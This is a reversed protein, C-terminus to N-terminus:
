LTPTAMSGRSRLEAENREADEECRLAFPLARLRDMIIEQGCDICLGFAGGEIREIAADILMLERRQAEVLHSLTYDALEVQANEEYEPDREQEKLAQVEERTAQSVRVIERRRRQLAQRISAIDKARAM